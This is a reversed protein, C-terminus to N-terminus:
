YKPLNNIDLPIVYNWVDNRDTEWNFTDDGNSYCLKWSGNESDRCLCPTGEPIKTKEIEEKTALRFYKPDHIASGSGRFKSLIIGDRNLSIIKDMNGVNMGVHEGHTRIVRDGVKFSKYTGFIKDFLEHQEETCSNRMGIYFEESIAIDEKLIICKGWKQFLIEKWDDCAIDIIEQAEKYTIQKM